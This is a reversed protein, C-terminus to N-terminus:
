GFWTFWGLELRQDKPSCALARSAGTSGRSAAPNTRALPLSMVRSAPEEMSDTAVAANESALPPQVVREVRRAPEHKEIM